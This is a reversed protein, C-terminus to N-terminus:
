RTRSGGFQYQGELSFMPTNMLADTKLEPIYPACFFHRYSARLGMAGKQVTLDLGVFGAVETSYTERDPPAESALDDLWVAAMGGRPLLDFGWNAPQVHPVRIGPAIYIAHRLRMADGADTDPELAESGPNGFTGFGGADVFALRTLRSDFGITLGFPSPGEVMSAGLHLRNMPELTTNSTVFRSYDPTPEPQEVAPVASARAIELPLAFAALASVLSIFRRAM